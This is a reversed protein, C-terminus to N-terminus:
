KHVKVVGASIAEEILFTELKETRLANDTRYERTINDLEIAFREESM